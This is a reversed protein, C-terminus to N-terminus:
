PTGGGEIVLIMGAVQADLDIAGVIAPIEQHREAGTAIDKEAPQDAVKRATGQLRQVAAALDADQDDVEM